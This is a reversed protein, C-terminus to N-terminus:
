AAITGFLLLEKVKQNNKLLNPNVAFTCLFRNLLLANHNVTKIDSLSFEKRKEKEISFWHVTRAMSVATLSINFHFHLKEKSRAQCNTLGTHQKADRYLFEIQFRTRYVELIEDASMKTDTSFYIEVSITKKSTTKQVVVVRINRKLATSKVVATYAKENESDTKIETFHSMDLNRVDVKDGVTKTRGPKGTKVPEIIYTMRADDRLKSVVTFGANCIPNVFTEKSFYADAVIITSIEQLKAKRDILMGAYHEILSENTKPVTQVAELHMATRNDLDIAAIGCVEIGPKPAGACGSWFRGVGHTKKGAKPIFTPDFGIVTRESCYDSVIASNFGLFDFRKGFWQRVSQECLKGYREIQLFNIKGKISLFLWLVSTFFEKHRKNMPALSSFYRECLSSYSLYNNFIM